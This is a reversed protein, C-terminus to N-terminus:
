FGADRFSLLFLSLSVECAITRVAIFIFHWQWHCQVPLAV